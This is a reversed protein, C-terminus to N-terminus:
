KTGVSRFSNKLLFARVTTYQYVVAEILCVFIGFSLIAFGQGELASLMIPYSAYLINKLNMFGVM